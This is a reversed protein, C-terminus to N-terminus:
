RDQLWVTADLLTISFQFGALFLYLFNLIFVKGSKFISSKADIFSIIVLLNFSNISFHFRGSKIIISPQTPCNFATNSTISFSFNILERCSTEM